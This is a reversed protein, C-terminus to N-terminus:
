SYSVKNKSFMKISASAKESLVSFITKSTLLFPLFIVSYLMIVAVFLQMFEHNTVLTGVSGSQYPAKLILNTANESFINAVSVTSYIPIGTVTWIHVVIGLGMMLIPGILIWRLYVWGWTKFLSKSFFILALLLLFPSLILLIWLIVLRSLLILTILFQAFAILSVMGSIMWIDSKYENMYLEDRTFTTGPDAEKLTTELSTNNMNYVGVTGEVDVVNKVNVNFPDNTNTPKVAISSGANPSNVPVSNSLSTNGGSLTIAFTKEVGGVFLSLLFLM